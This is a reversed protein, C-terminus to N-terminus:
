IGGTTTINCRWVPHSDGWNGHVLGRRCKWRIRHGRNFLLPTKTQLLRGELSTYCGNIHSAEKCEGGLSSSSRWVLEWTAQPCQAGRDADSGSAASGGQRPRTNQCPGGRCCWDQGHGMRYAACTCKQPHIPLEPPFTPPRDAGGPSILMVSFLGEWQLVDDEEEEPLDGQRETERERARWPM